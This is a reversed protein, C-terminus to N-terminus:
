VQEACATSSYLAVSKTQEASMNTIKSLLELANWM